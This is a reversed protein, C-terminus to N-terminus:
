PTWLVALHSHTPTQQLIDTLVYTAAWGGFSNRHGGSIPRVEDALWAHKRYAAWSRTMAAKVQSLRQKRERADARAETKNFAYQVKPLRQHSTAPLSTFTQVPYRQKRQAWDFKNSDTKPPLRYITGPPIEIAAPASHSTFTRWHSLVIILILFVFFSIGLRNFSLM